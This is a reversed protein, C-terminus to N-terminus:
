HIPQGLGLGEVQLHISWGGGGGCVYFKFHINLIYEIGVTITTKVEVM